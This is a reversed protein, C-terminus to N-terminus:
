IQGGKNQLQRRLDELEKFTKQIIEKHQQLREDRQHLMDGCQQITEDRQRITDQARQLKRESEELKYMNEEVIFKKKKRSRTSAEANRQRKKQAKLSGKETEFAVPIQNNGPLDLFAQQGNLAEVAGFNPWRLMEASPSATSRVSSTLHSSARAPSFAQFQGANALEERHSDCHVPEYSREINREYRATLSTGRNQPPSQRSNSPADTVHTYPANGFYHRQGQDSQDHRPGHQGPSLEDAPPEAAWQAAESPLRQTPSNLLRAISLPGQRKQATASEPM